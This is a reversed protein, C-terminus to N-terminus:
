RKLGEGTLERYERTGVDSWNQKDAAVVRGTGVEVAYMDLIATADSQSMGRDIIYTNQNGLFDSEDAVLLNPTLMKETYICFVLGWFSLYTWCVYIAVEALILITRVIRNWVSKRKLWVGIWIIGLLPLIWIITIKGFIDVWTRYSMETFILIRAGVLYLIAGIVALITVGKLPKM